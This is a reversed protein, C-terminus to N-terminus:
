LISKYMYRDRLKNITNQETEKYLLSNVYLFKVVQLYNKQFFINYARHSRVFQCRRHKVSVLKDKLDNVLM